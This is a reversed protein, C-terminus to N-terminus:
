PTPASAIHDADTARTILCTPTLTHLTRSNPDTFYYCSVGNSLDDARMLVDNSSVIAVPQTAQYTQQAAAVSASAVLAGLLAGLLLRKV